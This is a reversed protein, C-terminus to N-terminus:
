RMEVHGLVCGMSYWALPEGTEQPLKFYKRNKNQFGSLVTGNRTTEAYKRLWVAGKEMNLPLRAHHTKQLLDTDTVPRRKREGQVSSTLVATDSVNGVVFYDVRENKENTDEVVIAVDDDDSVGDWKDTRVNNNRYAQGVMRGNARDKSQQAISQNFMKLPGSLEKFLTLSPSARMGGGLESDVLVDQHQQEVIRAFQEAVDVNQAIEVVVDEELAAEEGVRPADPDQVGQRHPGICANGTCTGDCTASSSRGFLLGGGYVDGDPFHRTVPGSFFHDPNNLDWMAADCGIVTTVTRLMDAIGIDIASTLEEDTLHWGPAAKYRERDVRTVKTWKSPTM